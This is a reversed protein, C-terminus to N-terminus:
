TAGNALVDLHKKQYNSTRFIYSFSSPKQGVYADPYNPIYCPMGTPGLFHM